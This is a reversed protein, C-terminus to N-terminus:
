PSSQILGGRALTGEEVKKKSYRKTIKVMAKGAGLKVVYGAAILKNGGTYDFHYFDIKSGKKLGASMGADIVVTNGSKAVKTVNAEVTYEKFAADIRQFTKPDSARRALTVIFGNGLDTSVGSIRRQYKGELRWMKGLAINMGVYPATWSRNVSNFLASSGSNIMPKNEPDDTYADQGLSTVNEVGALLAFKSWVLAGEVESFIESSLNSSPNRYLLRGSLANNSKSMLTAAAGFSTSVGDDGLSIKDPEGGDYEENTFFSPEYNAELAIELGDQNPFSYKLQVLGSKLGSTTLSIEDGNYNVTSANRRITLGASVQLRNTLGYSGILDLDMMSFNEGDVFPVSEGSDDIRDTSSFYTFRSLIESGGDYLTTSKPVYVTQALAGACASLAALIILRKIMGLNYPVLRCNYFATAQTRM